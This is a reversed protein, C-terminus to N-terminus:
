QAVRDASPQMPLAFVKSAVVRVARKLANKVNRVNFCRKVSRHVSLTALQSIKLRNEPKASGASRHRGSSMRPPAASSSPRRSRCLSPNGPSIACAAGSKLARCPNRPRFRLAACRRPRPPTRSNTRRPVKRAVRGRAMTGVVTSTATVWRVRSISCDRMRVSKPCDCPMRM